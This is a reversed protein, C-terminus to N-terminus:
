ASPAGAVRDSSSLGPMGAICAHVRAKDHTAARARAGRRRLRACASRPGRGGSSLRQARRADAQARYTGNLTEHDTLRFKNGIAEITVHRPSIYFDQPFNLDCDERGVTLSHGRACVTMGVAGGILVQSIRFTSPFKPSSYFYTGEQDVGDSPNPSPDVRFVQDGAMFQDGAAVEVSGRIRYYVGNLSDEDRIVLHRDRYFFNAHRPSIFEDDPFELQGSRGLIHQEAKLHYSLGDMGDGRILILRAKDPNQMDSFYRTQASIVDEPVPAGCRGCFKHGNAVGTM